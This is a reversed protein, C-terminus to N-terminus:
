RGSLELLLVKGRGNDSGSNGAVLLQNRDGPVIAIDSLLLTGCQYSTLIRGDPDIVQIRSQDKQAVYVRGRQDVAIGTVLGDDKKNDVPLKAFVKKPGAKGASLLDFSLVQDEQSEVVYLRSGDPSLAIGDPYALKQAVVSVKGNTALYHIQGIPNKIRAYGPDSFYLGGNVDAAVDKPARLFYGDSKVALKETVLGHQDLKVIARQSADCLAFGNGLPVLGRPSGPRSFTEVRGDSKIRSISSRHSVLVSGDDLAIMHDAPQDFDAVDTIRVPARLPLSSNADSLAGPAPADPTKAAVPDKSIRGVVETSSSTDATLAKPESKSPTKIMPVPTIEPLSDVKPLSAVDAKKETKVKEPLPTVPIVDEPEFPNLGSLPDDKAADLKNTKAEPKSVDSQEKPEPKSESQKESQKESVTSEDAKVVPEKQAPKVAPEVPVAVEPLPVDITAPSEQPTDVKPKEAKPADVKPAPIADEADADPIPKAAPKTEDAVDPLPAAKLPADKKSDDPKFEPVFPEDDKSVITPKDVPKTDPEFLSKPKEDAKVDDAVPKAEPLAPEEISVAKSAKPQVAILPEEEQVVPKTAETTKTVAETKPAPPLPEDAFVDRTPETTTVAPQPADIKSAEVKPADAPTAVFEQPEAPEGLNADLKTQNKQPPTLIPTTDDYPPVAQPVLPTAAPVSVPGSSYGRSSYSGGSRCGAFGVLVVVGLLSAAGARGRIWQWLQMM